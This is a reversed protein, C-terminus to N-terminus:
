EYNWMRIQIPVTRFLEKLDRCLSPNKNEISTSEHDVIHENDGGPDVWGYVVNRMRTCHPSIENVIYWRIVPSDYHLQRKRSYVYIAELTRRM